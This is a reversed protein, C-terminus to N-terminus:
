RKPILGMRYEIDKRNRDGSAAGVREVCLSAVANAFIASDVVSMGEYLGCIFGAAFNDGAGTTDVAKIGPVASVIRNTAANRVLCGAGGLKVIVNKVGFEMFRDAIRGPDDEGTIMAAEEYNPLLYDIYRLADKIDEAKEGRKPKTTDVCLVAGKAKIGAFVEPLHDVMHPHVFMSAYSVIGNEAIPTKRVAEMVHEPMIKRLGGNPDTIFRREGKADVLVVNVGTDLDADTRIGSIDVGDRECAALILQGAPDKGVRSILKVRRGLRSLIMAENLADGGTQMSIGGAPTSGREFIGADVGTVLVDAIASGIVIIEPKNDM